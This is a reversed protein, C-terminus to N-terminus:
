NCNQKKVIQQKTQFMIVHKMFLAWDTTSECSKDNECDTLFDSLLTEIEMKLENPSNRNKM